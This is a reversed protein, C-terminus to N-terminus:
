NFKIYRIMIICKENKCLLWLKEKKSPHALSTPDIVCLSLSLPKRPTACRLGAFGSSRKTLLNPSKNQM